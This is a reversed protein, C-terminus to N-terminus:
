KRHLTEGLRSFQLTWDSTELQGQQYVSQDTCCALAFCHWAIKDKRVRCLVVLYLVNAYTVIKVGEAALLAGPVKVFINNAPNHRIYILRITPNTM